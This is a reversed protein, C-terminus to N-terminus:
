WELDSESIRKWCKECIPLEEGDWMIYLVITQIQVDRKESEPRKAKALKM